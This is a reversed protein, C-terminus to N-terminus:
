HAALQRTHRMTGRLGAACVWRLAASGNAKKASREIACQTCLRRSYVSCLAYSYTRICRAPSSAHASAFSLRAAGGRPESAGLTQAGLRSRREASMQGLALRSPRTLPRSLVAERCSALPVRAHARLSKYASTRAMAMSTAVNKSKQRRRFRACLNPIRHRYRYYEAHRGSVSECDCLRM